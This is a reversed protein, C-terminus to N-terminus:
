GRCLQTRIHFNEKVLIYEATLSSASELLFFIVCARHKGEIEKEWEAGGIMQRDVWLDVIGDKVAPQLFRRVFSLWQVEGESPKEPEDAHAYSIFIVSKVLSSM